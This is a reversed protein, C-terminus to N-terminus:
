DRGYDTDKIMGSEIPWDAKFKDFRQMALKEFTAFRSEALSNMMLDFSNKNIITINSTFGNM